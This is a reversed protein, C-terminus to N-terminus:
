RFMYLPAPPSIRRNEIATLAEGLLAYLANRLARASRHDPHNDPALLKLRVLDEVVEASIYLTAIRTGERQRRVYAAQKRRQRDREKATTRPRRRHQTPKEKWTAPTSQVNTTATTM